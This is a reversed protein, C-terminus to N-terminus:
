GSNTPVLRWLFGIYLWRYDDIDWAQEPNSGAGWEGRPPNTFKGGLRVEGFVQLLGGTNQPWDGTNFTFDCSVWWLGYAGHISYKGVNVGFIAWIYAFIGAGHLMQTIDNDWEIGRLDDNMVM